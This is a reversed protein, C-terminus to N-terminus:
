PTKEKNQSIEDNEPFLAHISQYVNSTLDIHETLLRRGLEENRALTAEMLPTHLGIDLAEDLLKNIGKKISPKDIAVQNARLLINCHYRTRQTEIQDLLKKMWKSDCASILATHFNKHRNEWGDFDKASTNLTPTIQKSLQYHSAVIRGEWDEDGLRISSILMEVELLQRTRDLDKLEDLSMSAVRFGLNHSSSVLQESSLRNLAERLPTVGFGFEAQLAAAKLSQGEALEGRLIMKRLKCYVDEAASKSSKSM